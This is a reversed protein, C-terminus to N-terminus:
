ALLSEAAQRGTELAGHLSAHARHDGAVLVGGVRLQRDLPGLPTVAPLSDPIRLVRLTRWGDVQGGFWSRLQSRAAADLEADTAGRPDVVTASVLAAGSPAYSPQVDSLVALDNVPGQGTGDLVLTPEGVPSADAAYQLYAGGRFSPLEVGAVLGAAARGDTAVVVADAEIREGAALVVAGPEVAQVAVGTRLVDAALRSALQAPIAEMGDHPLAASGTAFMRVVFDLMRSSTSLSRDLMVGGLFPRFFREVMAASFGLNCLADLTTTEPRSLLHQLPGAKARGVLRASAALDPLTVAPSALGRAADGPRRLPNAVRTFRNGVRSLAGPYFHGLALGEYDLWRQAEPYATLLVQFGRDLLFGDVRDTRVRGGPRGDRELVLVHRGEQQLRLACALGAVGAGVVVVDPRGTPPASM